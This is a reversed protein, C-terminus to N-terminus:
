RRHIIGRRERLERRYIGRGYTNSRTWEHDLLVRREGRTCWRWGGYVLGMFGSINMRLREAMRAREMEVEWALVIFTVTDYSM